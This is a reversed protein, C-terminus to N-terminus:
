EKEKGWLDQEPGRLLQALSEGMSRPHMLSAWNFADAKQGTGQKAGRPWRKWSDRRAPGRGVEEDEGGCGPM